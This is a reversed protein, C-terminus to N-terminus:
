AAGLGVDRMVLGRLSQWGLQLACSIEAKIPAILPLKIQLLNITYIPSIEHIRFSGFLVANGLLCSLLVCGKSVRHGLM